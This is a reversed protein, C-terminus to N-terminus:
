TEEGDPQCQALLWRATRLLQADQGYAGVLQVGVPMGNPGSLLPLTVAPLGCLTWLTCFIPDGTTTLDAPAEGPAAPTIIADFREFLPELAELLVPQMDRAALYDVARIGQGQDMLAKFADSIQSADRDLYHGLNRTMESAMITALWGAGRGFLEPLETETGHEGLVDVLEAFGARTEPELRESFPTHVMAIDPTVPPTSQAIPQLPGVNLDCDRDEDDPGMAAAALTIDDISRAFFGVHDLSPAAKLVGTRPVTGYSPKYGVVGCFSAPRIVSGNTQTGVAFPVMGAAVAAASGSSSGGPTRTPDHPNKTAGPHFYALESTVTKGVIIAGANRLRQTVTADELPRHGADLPTGNHTPLGRADIIDKLGVPVGHLPGLPLGQARRRDAEKAQMIALREDYHAWAQIDPETAEIRELCARTVAEATLVGDALHGALATATLTSPDAIEVREAM